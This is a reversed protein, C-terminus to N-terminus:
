IELRGSMMGGDDVVRVGEVRHTYYLKNGQEEFITEETESKCM